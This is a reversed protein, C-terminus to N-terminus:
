YELSHQQVTYSAQHTHQQCVFLAIRCIPIFLFCILIWCKKYLIICCKGFLDELLDLHMVSIKCCTRVNALEFCKRLGQLFKPLPPKLVQVLLTGTSISFLTYLMHIHTYDWKAQQVRAHNGWQGAQSVSSILKSQVQFLLLLLSHAHQPSWARRSLFAM